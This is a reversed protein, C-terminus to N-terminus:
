KNNAGDEVKVDCHDIVRTRQLHTGWTCLAGLMRVKEQPLQYGHLGGLKSCCRSEKSCGWGGMSSSWLGEVGQM